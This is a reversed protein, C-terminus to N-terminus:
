DYDEGDLSPSSTPKKPAVPVPIEIVEGTVSDKKTVFGGSYAPDAPQLYRTCDTEVDMNYPQIFRDEQTIGLTKDAYVQEMYNAWIPLAMNAGCGLRTSRFRVAKEDGGVWAGSVLNPTVGIYWGDSNDNTTGTKGAIEATLNYKYRIRTGTGHNTVEKLLTIMAYANQESIVEHPSPSFRKIINGNKDEIKTICIPKSYFGKNAFTTYAGVMEYVSIDPTGLCISPYPDIHSEIGMLHAMNVVPEPTIQKMLYATVRNISNALGTKLTVMQGDFKNGVNDPTWGDFDEFTVPANPVKRCPSWGNQVAVMYVFPKFTSGVQRKAEMRVNDYKFHKFDIGGVWAKVYGTKPDMSMFGANLFMMYHAISDMPTLVTDKEGQWTFVRMETPKEFSEKIKKESIGQNKMSIFRDSKRIGRYFLENTGKWTKNNKEKTLSNWPRKSKWHNYFQKQLDKMSEKVADEAYKQMKSNITTYIKLGDEYINYSDGSVNESEKAWEKTISKIYERFYTAMGENHDLRYFRTELALAQISDVEDPTLRDYREMQKLVVDRRGKSREPNRIPNYMTSGKLMGVLVAAEQVKLSDPSSNFYVRSAAKIGHANNSFPVTNLYMTIIEEKTYSKELMVAIVWEKLKQKVRGIFSSEREHFLNKALQQTITSGGGAKQGLMVTKYFVRLLGRVDIGSHQYFRIDETCLLADVTHQPIQDFSINSRDVIYFKGLLVSDESYVESALSNKPSELQYFSPLPGFAGKAVGIFLLAMSLIAAVFLGWMAGVYKAYSPKKNKHNDTNKVAGQKKSNNPQNEM